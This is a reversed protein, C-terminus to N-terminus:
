LALSDPQRMLDGSCAPIPSAPAPISREAPEPLQSPRFYDAHEHIIAAIVAVPILFVIWDTKM